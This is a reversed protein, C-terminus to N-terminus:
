MRRRAATQRFLYRLTTRASRHSGQSQQPRHRVNWRYESLIHRRRRARSNIFPTMQFLIPLSAGYIKRWNSFTRWSQSKIQLANGLFPLGPPGPPLNRWPSRLYRALFVVALGTVIIAFLGPHDSLVDTLHVQLSVMDAAFGLTSM